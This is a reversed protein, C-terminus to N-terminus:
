SKRGCYTFSMSWQKWLPKDQWGRDIQGLKMSEELDRHPPEWALNELGVVNVSEDYLRRADTLYGEWTHQKERDHDSSLAARQCEWCVGCDPKMTKSVPDLRPIGTFFRKYLLEVKSKAHKARAAEHFRPCNRTEGAAQPPGNQESLDETIEKIHEDLKALERAQRALLQTYAAVYQQHLHNRKNHYDELGDEVIKRHQKCPEKECWPDVLKKKGTRPVKLPAGQRTRRLM